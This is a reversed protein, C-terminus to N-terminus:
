TNVKKIKWKKDKLGTNSEFLIIVYIPNSEYKDHFMEVTKVHYIISYYMDGTDLFKVVSRYM